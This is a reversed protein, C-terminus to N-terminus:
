TFDIIAGVTSSSKGGSWQGSLQDESAWADVPTCGVNFYHCHAQFVLFAWNVATVTITKATCDVNGSNFAQSFFHTENDADAGNDVFKPPHNNPAGACEDGDAEQGSDIVFRGTLSGWDGAGSGQRFTFIAKATFSAFNYTRSNNPSCAPNGYSQTHSWAPFTVPVEGVWQCKGSVVGVYELDVTSGFLGPSPSTVGHYGAPYGTLATWSGSGITLQLVAPLSAGGACKYEDECTPEADCCCPYGPM